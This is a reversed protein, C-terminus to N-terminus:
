IPHLFKIAEFKLEKIIDHALTFNSFMEPFTPKCAWNM